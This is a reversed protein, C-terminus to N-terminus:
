TGTLPIYPDSPFQVDDNKNNIWTQLQTDTVEAPRPPYPITYQGRHDERERAAGSFTDWSVIIDVPHGYLDGVIEELDIEYNEKFFKKIEESRNENESQLFLQRIKAGEPDNPLWSQAILQSMKKSNNKLIDRFNQVRQEIDDADPQPARSHPENQRAKQLKIRLAEILPRSFADFLDQYTGITM